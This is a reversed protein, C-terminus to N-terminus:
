EESQESTKDENGYKEGEDPPFGVRAWANGPRVPSSPNDSERWEKVANEREKRARAIEALEAETKPPRNNANLRAAINKREDSSKPTKESETTETEEAAAPEEATVPEKSAPTPEETEPAAPEEAAAAAEQVAEEDPPFEIRKWADGPRVRPVNNERARWEAAVAEREAEQEKRVREAEAAAAREKEAKYDANLDVDKRAKAQEQGKSYYDEMKDSMRAPTNEDVLVPTILIMLERKDTSSSTHKFFEGIIPISSLLPIKTVTKTDESNLLGGIVMTSGEHLHVISHRINLRIGYDKWKITINDGTGTPVPYPIQGGIFIKAKAGSMTSVSPRSLVKAKGETILLNLSANIASFHRWLWNYNDAHGVISEGFSFEGPDGVEVSVFGTKEDDITMGTTRHYKLGIDKADDVGIEILQAELRIQSPVEITLLDVVNEYVKTSQYDFDYEFEQDSTIDDASSKTSTNQSGEEVKGNAYLMAIKMAMDHEAQNKVTGRLLVRRGGQAGDGVVQVQVRPLGIARQIARAQGLNDIGVNIVYDEITGDEYWVYLTTSGSAVGVILVQSNMGSPRVIDAVEPNAIAINTIPMEGEFLFSGNLDIDIFSAAHAVPSFCATGVIGLAAVGYKWRNM